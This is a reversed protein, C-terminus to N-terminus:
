TPYKTPIGLARLIRGAQQQTGYVTPHPNYGKNPDSSLGMSEFTTLVPRNTVIDVGKMDVYIAKGPYHDALLKKEVNLWSYYPQMWTDLINDDMDVPWFFLDWDNIPNYMGSILLTAKPNLRYISSVIAALNIYYDTVWKRMGDVLTAVFLAWLAPHRVWARIYSAVNDAIAEMSGYKKVREPITM